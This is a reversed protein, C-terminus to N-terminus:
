ISSRSCRTTPKRPRISAMSGLALACWISSFNRGRSFHRVFEVALRARRFVPQRNRSFERAAQCQTSQPASRRLRSPEHGAYHRPRRRQDQSRHGAGRFDDSWAPEDRHRYSHGRRRALRFAQLVRGMRRTRQSRRNRAQCRDQRLCRRLEPLFWRACLHGGIAPRWARRAAEDLTAVFFTKCGAAALARAVPDAGCGYADAKIM